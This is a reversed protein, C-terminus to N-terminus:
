SDSDKEEALLNLENFLADCGEIRAAIRIREMAIEDITKAGFRLLQSKWVERMSKYLNVFEKWEDGHILLRLKDKQKKTIKKM